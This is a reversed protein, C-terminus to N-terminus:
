VLSSTPKKTATMSAILAEQADLRKGQERIMLALLDGHPANGGEGGDTPPNAVEGNQSLNKEYNYDGFDRM